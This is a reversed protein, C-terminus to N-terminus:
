SEVKIRRKKQREKQIKLFECKSIQKGNIYVSKVGQPFEADFLYDYDM